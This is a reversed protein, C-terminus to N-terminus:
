VQLLSYKHHCSYIKSYGYFESTGRCFCFLICACQLFLNTLYGIQIISYSINVSMNGM